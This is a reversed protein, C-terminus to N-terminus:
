GKIPNWHVSRARTSNCCVDVIACARVCARGHNHLRGMIARELWLLKRKIKLSLEILYQKSFILTPHLTTYGFGM